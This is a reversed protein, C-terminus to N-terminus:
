TRGCVIYDLSPVGGRPKCASQRLTCASHVVAKPQTTASNTMFRTHLRVCSIQLRAVLMCSAHLWYAMRCSALLWWATLTRGTHLQDAAARCSTRLLYAAPVCSTQLRAALRCGHLWAAAMCGAHLWHLRRAAAMCSGHLRPAAATCGGHLQRTRSAHLRLESTCGTHHIHLRCAASTCSTHLWRSYHTSPGSSEPM